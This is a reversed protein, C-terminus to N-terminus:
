SSPKRSLELNFRDLEYRLPTDRDRPGSSVEIDMDIRQAGPDIRMTLIGGM